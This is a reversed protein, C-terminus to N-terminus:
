DKKKGAAYLAGLVVMAIVIWVEALGIMGVGITDDDGYADCRALGFVIFFIEMALMIITVIVKFKFLKSAKKREEAEIELEKLRIREKIDAEHIRAEDRKIEVHETRIVEDDLIIQQGCHVCFCSKKGVDLDFKINGGCYPCHIGVVKM